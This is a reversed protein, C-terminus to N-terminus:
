RRGNRSTGRARAAAPSRDPDTASQPASWRAPQRPSAWGPPPSVTSAGRPRSSGRLAKFERPLSSQPRSASRAWCAARGCSWADLVSQCCSGLLLAQCAVARRRVGSGAEALSPDTSTSKAPRQGNRNDGRPSGKTTPAPNIITAQDGAARLTNQVASSAADLGGDTQELVSFLAEVAANDSETLALIADINQEATLGDGSRQLQDLLTTLM